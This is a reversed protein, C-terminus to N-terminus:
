EKGEELGSLIAEVIVFFIMEKQPFFFCELVVQSM